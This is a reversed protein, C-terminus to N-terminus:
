KNLHKWWDRGHKLVMLTAKQYDVPIDNMKLNGLQYEIVFKDLKDIDFMKLIDKKLM